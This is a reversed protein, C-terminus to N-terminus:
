REFTTDLWNLFELKLEDFDEKRCEEHVIPLMGLSNKNWLYKEISYSIKPQGIYEEKDIDIARGDEQVETVSTRYFEAGPLLKTVSKYYFPFNM